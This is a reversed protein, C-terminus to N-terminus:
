AYFQENQEEAQFHIPWKGNHIWTCQADISKANSEAIHATKTTFDTYYGLFPPFKYFLDHQNVEISFM